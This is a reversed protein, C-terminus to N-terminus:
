SNARIVLATSLLRPALMVVKLRQPRGSVAIYSCTLSVVTYSGRSFGFLCIKDGERYNQMLFHYADKIHVGLSSGVAMDLAASLGGKM